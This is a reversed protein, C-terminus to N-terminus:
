KDQWSSSAHKERLNQLRETVVDTRDRLSHKHVLFNDALDSDKGWILNQQQCYTLCQHLLPSTLPLNMSEYPKKAQIRQLQEELLTQLDEVIIGLRTLEKNEDNVIKLAHSFLKKAGRYNNRRYHYMGVAIQILAIWYNKRNERSDKKWHEELIEHCEFYDRQCHFQVLYDLYADNVIM